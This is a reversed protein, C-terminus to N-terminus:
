YETIEVKYKKGNSTLRATWGVSEELAEDVTMGEKISDNIQEIFINILELVNEKWESIKKEGLTM